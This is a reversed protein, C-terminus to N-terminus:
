TGLCDKSQILLQRSDLKFLLLIVEAHLSEAALEAGRVSIVLPTPKDRASTLVRPLLGVSSVMMIRKM